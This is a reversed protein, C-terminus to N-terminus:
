EQRAALWARMWEIEAQQDAIVREALARVEPDAGRELVEEAMAIAGEHHPIMGTVFDVDVDGTSPMESMSMADSGHSPSAEQAGALAPLVLVVIAAAIPSRM